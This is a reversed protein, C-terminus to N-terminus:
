DVLIGNDRLVTMYDQNALYFIVKPEPAVTDLIFVSSAFAERIEGNALKFTMLWKTKAMVFRDDLQNEELSVLSTSQCGLSDFLQKRRPLALAFEAARVCMAGQPAAAMFNDAFLPVLASMDGRQNCQEFTRFFSEVATVPTSM